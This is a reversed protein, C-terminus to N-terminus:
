VYCGVLLETLCALHYNVSQWNWSTSANLAPWDRGARKAGIGCIVVAVCTFSSTFDEPRSSTSNAPTQLLRSIITTKISLFWIHHSLVSLSLAFSRSTDLFCHCIQALLQCSLLILLLKQFHNSSIVALCTFRDIWRLFTVLLLIIQVCTARGTFSHIHQTTNHALGM